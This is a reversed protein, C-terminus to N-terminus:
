EAKICRVSNGNARGGASVASAGSSATIKCWYINTKDSGQVTSTWLRASATGEKRLGDSANRYGAIPFVIGSAVAERDNSKANITMTTGLADFAAKTAVIYGAPCPNSNTTWCTGKVYNPLNAQSGIITTPCQLAALDDALKSSGVSWDTTVADNYVYAATGKDKAIVPFGEDTGNVRAGVIPDKRGAQYYLGRAANTKTGTNGTVDTKYGAGLNRDLWTFGGATVDALDKTFWLHWSWVLNGDADLAGVVLDGTTTMTANVYIKGDKLVVGDALKNYYTEDTVSFATWDSPNWEASTAWVWDASTCEVATGDPKKADFCYLGKEPIVYCNAYAEGASLDVPVIDGAYTLGTPIMQGRAVTLGTATKTMSNLETDYFTFKINHSGAPLGFYFKVGEETLQVDKYTYNVTKTTGTMAVEPQAEKYNVTCKGGIADESELVIKSIKTAGKLTLEVIGCTQKFHLTGDPTDSYAVFPIATPDYGLSEATAGSHNVPMMIQLTGDEVYAGTSASRKPFTAIIEEYNEAPQNPTDSAVSFEAVGDEVSKCNYYVPAHNEGNYVTIGDGVEFSFKVGSVAAKADQDIVAKLVHQSAPESIQANPASEKACSILAAAAVAAIILYKKM